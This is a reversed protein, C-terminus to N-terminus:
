ALARDRITRWLRNSGAILMLVAGFVIGNVKQITSLGAYPNRPTVM